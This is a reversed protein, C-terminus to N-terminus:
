IIKRNKAKGKKAMKKRGTELIEKRSLNMRYQQDNLLKRFWYFYEYLAGEDKAWVVKHNAIVEWKLYLPMEEFCYVDYKKSATDVKRYVARMIDLPKKGPAVLCIDYDRGSKGNANSGYLLIADLQPQLFAFDKGIAM